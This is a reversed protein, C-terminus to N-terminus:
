LSQSWRIYAAAGVSVAGSALVAAAAVWVYKKRRRVSTGKKDPLQSLTYTYKEWVKEPVEMDEQLGHIMNDFRGM